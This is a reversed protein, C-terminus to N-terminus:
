IDIGNFTSDLWPHAADRTSLSTARLPWTIGVKPDDFRIAGEFDPSYPATHFYLLESDPDLVQFGHAFGEPIIIHVGTGGDLRVGYWELFTPSGRRLDIAVDFVAGRLCRIIKTECRPKRQYHMGRVSGVARTLSHNIQAIPKDIGASRLADACYIRCFTGRADAFPEPHMLMVGPLATQSFRM